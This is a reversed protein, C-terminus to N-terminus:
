ASAAFTAAADQDLVFQDECVGYGEDASGRRTLSRVKVSIGREALETLLRDGFKTVTKSDDLILLKGSRSCSEILMTWDVDPIFNSHFLDAQVGAASL